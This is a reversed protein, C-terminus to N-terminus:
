RRVIFVQETEFLLRTWAWGRAEALRAFAEGYGAVMGKKRGCLSAVPFSVVLVGSHLRDLLRTGAGQHLQDLCPLCKLVLAVDCEHPPLPGTVDCVVASGRVALRPLADSLFGILDEYVDWATYSAGPSLSMWPIALPNLGCAVDLVSSVPGVHRFVDRYFEVLVGLRERTSTHLRMADRCAAKTAEVDGSSRVLEGLLAGYPVGSPLFAGAAQHLAHKTRKIADARTLRPQNAALRAAVRAVADPSVHRYKPAARVAEVVAGLDPPPKPM